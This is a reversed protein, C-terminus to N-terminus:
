HNHWAIMNILEPARAPHCNSSLKYWSIGHKGRGNKVFSMDPFFFPFYFFLRGGTLNKAINTSVSVKETLGSEMKWTFVLWTETQMYAHESKEKRWATGNEPRHSAGYKHLKQQDM